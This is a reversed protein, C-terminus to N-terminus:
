NDGCAAHTTGRYYYYYLILKYKCTVKMHEKGTKELELKHLKFLIPSPTVLFDRLCYISTNAIPPFKTALKGLGQLNFHVKTSM